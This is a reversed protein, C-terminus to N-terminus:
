DEIRTFRGIIQGTAQNSPSDDFETKLFTLASYDPSFVLTRIQSNGGRKYEIIDTVYLSSGSITVSRHVESKDLMWTSELYDGTQPIIYSDYHSKRESEDTYIHLKAETTVLEGKYHVTVKGKFIGAFRTNNEVKVEAKDQPAQQQTAEETNTREPFIAEYRPRKLDKLNELEQAIAPSITLWFISITAILIKM